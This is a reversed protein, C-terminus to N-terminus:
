EGEREKRAIEAIKKTDIDKEKRVSSADKNFNCM